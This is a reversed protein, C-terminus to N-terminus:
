LDKAMFKCRHSLHPFSLANLALFGVNKGARNTRVWGQLFVYEVQDKELQSGENTLEYLERVTM